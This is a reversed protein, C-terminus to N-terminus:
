TAAQGAAPDSTPASPAPSAADGQPLLNFLFDMAGTTSDALPRLGAAMEALLPEASDSGDEIFEVSSPWLSWVESLSDSTSRALTAYRSTAERALQGVPPASIPQPPEIRAVAEAQPLNTNAVTPRQPERSQRDPLVIMVLLAVAAALTLHTWVSWSKNAVPTTAAVQALVRDALAEDPEPQESWRLTECIVDMAAALQRCDRCAGAHRSLLRDDAPNRRADLAENLRTEFEDCRM